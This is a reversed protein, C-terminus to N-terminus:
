YQDSGLSPGDKPPFMRRRTEALEACILGAGILVCGAVLLLGVVVSAAWRVTLAAAIDSTGYDLPTMVVGVGGFIAACVLLVGFILM